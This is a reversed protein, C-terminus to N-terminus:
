PGAALRRRAVWLLQAAGIVCALATAVLAATAGDPWSLALLLGTAALIVRTPREGVTVVGIEDMGAAAARARTYELLGVAAGAAVALGASGGARWLAVLFLGDALRDAVSDVVFGFRTVRRTLVAVAGDLSDLVASLVVLAAALGPLPGAAVAVAGASLVGTTTLAAPSVGVGALPRALRYTLALWGRVLRGGTAPDYGGHLESWQAFYDTRAPLGQGSSGPHPRSV